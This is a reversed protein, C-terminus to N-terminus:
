RLTLKKIINRIEDYDSDLAEIFGTYNPNISKLIERHESSNGDLALLSQKFLLRENEPVNENVCINFEPIEVSRQIVKLGKDEFKEATSEMLGGADFDGNVVARAVDDHQGFHEYSSLDKLDIGAEIMMSRPVLYSSTSNKDGFAFSHGKIDAITNIDSEARAVIVSHHFPRGKNVTKAIVQVNFRKRAEIYTTPTLFSITTVGEGINRLTETFDMAINLEIIKNLKNSLYDTLPVFRNYMEAPSELPVIGFSVVDTRDKITRIKFRNLETMLLEADKQLRRLINNMYYAREKNKEPLERVRLLSNIIASSESKQEKLAQSIAHIKLTSNELAQYIQKGGKTQEANANKVQKAVDSIKESASIIHNVGGAQESAAKAIQRIMDKVREMAETVFIVGRTQESTSRQVANAMDTSKKSSEIIKQLASKAEKSLRSGEEVTKIGDSMAEVAGKVEFQVSKILSSIEQTSFATREALGKIEDAVVSFGKGHEGAQAALIAANLALLTTQDTIENIVNLIKGIEESRGGLKEIFEATKQVSEKIREMGEGTKQITDMGFSSADSTVKESGQASERSNEEIEKIATSIEEIASMTEESATALEKTRGAIEQISVSMEEISTSSMDVASSLESANQAIQEANAVMEDVAVTVEESSSSVSDINHSIEGVSKDLEEISSFISDSADAELRTGEVVNKSENEVDHSVKAVRESLGKAKQIINSVSSIATKLHGTLFGIEDESHINTQFSLDGNSLVKSAGELEKIPNIVTKKFIMWLGGSFLFLAFLLGLIIIKTRYIIKEKAFQTQMSVKVIGLLNGRKDHCGMCRSKNMLPVYYVISDKTERSFTTQTNKLNDIIPMDEPPIGANSDSFSVKGDTNFVMLSDLNPVTSKKRILNKTVEANGTIMTEEIAYIIFNITSDSYKGAIDRIDSKVFTVGVFGMVLSGVILTIVVLGVIKIELSSKM